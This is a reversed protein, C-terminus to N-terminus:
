FKTDENGSGGQLQHVSFYLPILVKILKFGYDVEGLINGVRNEALGGSFLVSNIVFLHFINFFILTVEFVRLNAGNLYDVM